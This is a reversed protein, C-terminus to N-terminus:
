AATCSHQMGLSHDAASQTQLYGDRPVTVTMASQTCAVHPSMHLRVKLVQDVLDSKQAKTLKKIDMDSYRKGNTPEGNQNSPQQGKATEADVQDEDAKDANKQANQVIGQQPMAQGQGM